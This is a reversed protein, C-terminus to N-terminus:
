SSRVATYKTGRAKGIWAVKKADILRNIAARAQLNNGGCKKMLTSVGVPETYDMLANLLAQEYAARGAPTRVNVEHSGGRGENRGRGGAAATKRAVAPAAAPASPAAVAARPAPTSQVKGAVLEALTIEAFVGGMAGSSLKYLEGLTLEPHQRLLDICIKRESEAIATKFAAEYKSSM